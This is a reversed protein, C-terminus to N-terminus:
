GKAIRMGFWGSEVGKNGDMELYRCLDDPGWIRRDRIGLVYKAYGISSRRHWCTSFEIYTLAALAIASCIPWLWSSSLWLGGSGISALAIASKWPFSREPHRVYTQIVRGATDDVHDQDNLALDRELPYSSPLAQQTDKDIMTQVIEGRGRRWERRTWVGTDVFLVVHRRGEARLWATRDVLEDTTMVIVKQRVARGRKATISQIDDTM